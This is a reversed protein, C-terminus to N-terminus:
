FWPKFRFTQTHDDITYRLPGPSHSSLNHIPIQLCFDSHGQIRGLRLETTCDRPHWSNSSTMQLKVPLEETNIAPNWQVESRGVLTGMDTANTEAIVLIGIESPRYDGFDGVIQAANRLENAPVHIYESFIRALLSRQADGFPTARSQVGDITLRCIGRSFGDYLFRGIWNRNRVIRRCLNQYEVPSPDTSLDATGSLCQYIHMYDSPGSESARVFKRPRWKRQSYAVASHDFNAPSPSLDLIIGRRRLAFSVGLHHIGVGKAGRVVAVRGKTFGGDLMQDVRADGSRLRGVRM